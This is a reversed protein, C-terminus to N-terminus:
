HHKGSKPTIIRQIILHTDRQRAWNETRLWQLWCIHVLFLHLSAANVPFPSSMMIINGRGVSLLYFSPSNLWMECADRPSNRLSQLLKEGKGCMCLTWQWRIPQSSKDHRPFLQRFSFNRSFNRKETRLCVDCVNSNCANWAPDRSWWSQANCKSSRTLCQVKILVSGGMPIPANANSPADRRTSLNVQRNGTFGACMIPLLSVCAYKWDVPFSEMLRPHAVFIRIFIHFNDPFRYENKSNLEAVFLGRRREIGYISALHLSYSEM